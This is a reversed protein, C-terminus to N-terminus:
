LEAIREFLGPYSIVLGIDDVLIESKFDTEVNEYLYTGTALCTYRQVAPKFHHHLVDIYIVNIKQPRNETLKLHNIPLTNTFPTVSIDIYQFGNFEQHLTGNIIWEEDQKKGALQEKVGNIESEISFEAVTWNEDIVINYRVRYIKDKSRGTIESEAIYRQDDKKINFYELSEDYIGKWILTKM